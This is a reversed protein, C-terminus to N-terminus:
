DARREAICCRHSGRLEGGRGQSRSGAGHIVDEAPDAEEAEHWEGQLAEGVRGETQLVSPLAAGIFAKFTEAEAKREFVQQTVSELQTQEEGDNNSKM